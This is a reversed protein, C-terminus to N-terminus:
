EKEGIKELLEIIKPDEEKFSMKTYRLIYYDGKEILSEMEKLFKWFGHLAHEKVQEDDSNIYEKFKEEIRVCDRNMKSLNFIDIYIKLVEDKDRM